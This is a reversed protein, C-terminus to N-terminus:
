LTKDIEKKTSMAIYNLMEQVDKESYHKLLQLKKEDSKNM